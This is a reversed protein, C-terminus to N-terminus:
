KVDIGGGHESMVNYVTMLGLGSGESKTTYYPEFIHPLDEERIGIGTDRFAIAAVREKHSVLIRLRGGRPMAEMANLILNIFVQYLRERDMLFRPLEPDRDVLCEIGNKRLEERMLSVADDLVEQLDEIKFRLPPKRVAKLFDKIIKDLRLTESRIVALGKEFSERRPGEISRSQKQLMQLHIGISNLPNGIEHAIGAALKLVSEIRASSEDPSDEALRSNKAALVLVVEGDEPDGLPSLLLRGDVVRPVASTWRFTKKERLGPLHERLLQGLAPDTDSDWLPRSSAYRASLNLLAKAPRNAYKLFGARDSVAIGDELLDFIEEYLTKARSLDAVYTSVSDRDIKDLRALLKHVFPIRNKM